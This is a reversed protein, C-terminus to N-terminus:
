EIESDFTINLDLQKGTKKSTVRVKFTNGFVRKQDTGLLGNINDKDKYAEYSPVDASGFSVQNISPVFNLLKKFQKTYTSPPGPFEYHNILPFVMGNENILTVSFVQSPNSRNGRVDVSRFMYYYTQNPKLTDVHSVSPLTDLGNKFKESITEYIGASQFDAYSHPPSSLRYIEFTAAMNKTEDSKFPIPELDNYKRSERFLSIYAADQPNVNIPVLIDQGIGSNLFLGLKNDVGKYPVFNVDPFVPPNDLIAGADEYYPFEVLDIVPTSSYTIIKTGEIYGKKVDTATVSLILTLMEDEKDLFAEIDTKLTEAADKRAQKKTKSTGDGLGDESALVRRLARILRDGEDEFATMSDLISQLVEKEDGSIGGMADVTYGISSSASGMLTEIEEEIQRRAKDFTSTTGTNSYDKANKDMDSWERGKATPFIAAMLWVDLKKSARLDM